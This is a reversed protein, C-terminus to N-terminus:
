SHASGARRNLERYGEANEGPTKLKEPSRGTTVMLPGPAGDILCRRGRHARAGRGCAAAGASLDPARRRARAHGADRGTDGDLGPGRGPVISPGPMWRRCSSICRRATHRRVPPSRGRMPTSGRSPPCCPRSPHQDDSGDMPEVFWPTLLRMFGALCVLEIAIPKSNPRCRGSSRRATRASIRSSRRGGHRNRRRPCPGTGQGASREVARARDRGSLRRAKAAEILAVMNSGRGSILIAVRKRDM